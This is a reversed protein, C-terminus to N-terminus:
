RVQGARHGLQRQAHRRRPRRPAQEPRLRDLPQPEKGMPLGHRPLPPAPFPPFPLTLNSSPRFSLALCHRRSKGGYGFGPLRYFCCHALLKGCLCLFSYTTLLFRGCRVVREAGGLFGCGYWEFGDGLQDETYLSKPPNQTIDYRAQPIKKGPESKAWGGITFQNKQGLCMDILESTRPDLEHAKQFVEPSIFGPLEPLSGGSTMLTGFKALSKANTVHYGSPTESTFGHKNNSAVSTDNAPPDPLRPISQVLSKYFDGDKNAGAVAMMGTLGPHEHVQSM